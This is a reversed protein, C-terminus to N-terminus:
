RKFFAKEDEIGQMLASFLQYTKDFRWNRIKKSGATLGLFALNLEFGLVSPRFCANSDIVSAVKDLTDNQRDAMNNNLVTYLKSTNVLLAVLKQCFLEKSLDNDKNQKIQIDNTAVAEKKENQSIVPPVKFDLKQKSQFALFAKDWKDLAANVIDFKLFISIENIDNPNPFKKSTNKIEELICFVLVKWEDSTAQIRTYFRKENQLVHTLPVEWQVM